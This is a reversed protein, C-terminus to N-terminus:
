LLATNATRKIFLITPPILITACRRRQRDRDTCDIAHHNQRCTSGAHLALVCLIIRMMLAAPQNFDSKGVCEPDAGM